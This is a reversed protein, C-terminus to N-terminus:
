NTWAIKIYMEPDSFFFRSKHGNYQSAGDVDGHNVVGIVVLLDHNVVLEGVSQHDHARSAPRFEVHWSDDSHGEWERKHLSPDSGNHQEEDIIEFM